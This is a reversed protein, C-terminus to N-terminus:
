HCQISNRVGSLIILPQVASEVNVLLVPTKANLEESLQSCRNFSTIRVAVVGECGLDGAIDQMQAQKCSM